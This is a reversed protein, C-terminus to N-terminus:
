KLEKKSFNIKKNIKSFTIFLILGIAAILIILMEVKYKLPNIWIEEMIGIRGIVEVFNWFIIVTPLAYRIAYGMLKIKILNKFLWLSWVLSGIAIIITIPHRDGLISKDYLFMLLIYCSWIIINTEIFTTLSKNNSTAEKRMEPMIGVKRQIWLFMKCGTRMKFIYLLMIISWFGISSMMLLYEPKTVVVGNEILPSISLKKAFYVYCFEIWGTWTLLGGIFGLLTSATDKKVHMGAIMIAIGALGLLFAAINLASGSLFYEMLIMAAHGIPMSLLVLIFALIGIFNFKNGTM